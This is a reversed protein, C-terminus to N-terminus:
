TLISVCCVALNDDALVQNFQAVQITTHIPLELRDVAIKFEDDFRSMIENVSFDRASLKRIESLINSLTSELREQNNLLLQLNENLKSETLLESLNFVDDQRVVLHTTSSGIVEKNGPGLPSDSFINNEQPASNGGNTIGDNEKHVNTDSETLDLDSLDSDSDSSSTNNGLACLNDGNAWNRGTVTQQTRIFFNISCEFKCSVKIWIQLM